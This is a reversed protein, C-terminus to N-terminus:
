KKDSSGQKNLLGGNNNQTVNVTTGQAKQLAEIKADRIKIQMLAEYKRSIDKIEQDHIFGMAGIGILCLILYTM